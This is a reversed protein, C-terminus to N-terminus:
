IFFPNEEARKLLEEKEIEFVDALNDAAQNILEPEQSAFFAKKGIINGALIQGDKFLISGREGWISNFRGQQGHALAKYYDHNIIQICALRYVIIASFILFLVIIVKARFGKM